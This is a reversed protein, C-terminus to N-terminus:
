PTYLFKIKTSPFIDSIEKPFRSRLADFISLTDKKSVVEPEGSIGALEAAKIVAFELTGIEDVLKLGKAQEGTFIRGDAISRVEEVELKRGEAVAKIFQGHVNDMVGQLIDRDEKEMKRFASAMDKHKGSKIVETTVGIKSMLGELNPIEMIVGISGTLTGPNAIIM